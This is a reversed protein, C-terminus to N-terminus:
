SGEGGDKDRGKGDMGKGKVEEEGKGGVGGDM